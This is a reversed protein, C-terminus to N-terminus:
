IRIGKKVELWPIDSVMGKRCSLFGFLCFIGLFVRVWLVKYKIHPETHIKSFSFPLESWYEQRSFGMSLPAQCAATQPTVLTPCLKAVLGGGFLKILMQGFLTAGSHVVCNRLGQILDPGGGANGTGWQSKAQKKLAAVGSFGVWCLCIANFTCCDSTSILKCFM